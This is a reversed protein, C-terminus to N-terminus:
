LLMLVGFGDFSMTCMITFTNVPLLHTELHTLGGTLFVNLLDTQNGLIALLEWRVSLSVRLPCLSMGLRACTWIGTSPWAQAQMEM